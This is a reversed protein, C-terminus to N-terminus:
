FPMEDADYLHWVFVGQQFTCLYRAHEPIPHGTGILYFERVEKKADPDVECWMMPGQGDQYQASLFRAGIPIEIPISGQIPIPFKWITLAM